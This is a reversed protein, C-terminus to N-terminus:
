WEKVYKEFRPFRVLVNKYVSNRPQQQLLELCTCTLCGKTIYSEGVLLYIM